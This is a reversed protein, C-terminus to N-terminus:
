KNFCVVVPCLVTKRDVYLSLGTCTWYSRTDGESAEIEDCTAFRTM